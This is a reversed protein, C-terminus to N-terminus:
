KRRIHITKDIEACCTGEGDVLAVRYTRNVASGEAALRKIEQIEAEALTFQARLTSRGPKLFRIAASKDWVVYGPGLIRILMVMYIPDVAAFM